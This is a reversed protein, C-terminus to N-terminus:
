NRDPLPFVAWLFGPWAIWCKAFEGLTPRRGLVPFTLFAVLFGTILYTLYVNLLTSLVALVTVAGSEM